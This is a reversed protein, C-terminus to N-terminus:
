PFKVLNSNGRELLAPSRTSRALILERFGPAFREVQSEIRDTMDLESGGPVHCYAWATHCGAPARSPDFLSSPALLVFPRAPIENRWSGRESRSIESLTGGLHVTGARACYSSIWSIPGRLAWAIKFVGLGHHHLPLTRLFPSAVAMPHVASCVDHSFGPLTLAGSRTGGGVSEEAELVLVSRGARALVIAAAL